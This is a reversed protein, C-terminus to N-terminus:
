NVAATLRWSRASSATAAAADMPATAATRAPVAAADAPERRLLWQLRLLAERTSHVCGEGRRGGQQNSPLAPLALLRLPQVGATLPQLPRVPAAAAAATAADTTQGGVAVEDADVVAAKATARAWSVRETKSAASSHQAAPSGSPSSLCLLLPWSLLAPQRRLSLRQM